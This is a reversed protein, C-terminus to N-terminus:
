GLTPARLFPSTAPPWRCTNQPHVNIVCWAECQGEATENGPHGRRGQAAHDPRRRRQGSKAYAFRQVGRQPRGPSTRGEAETCPRTCRQDTERLVLSLEVSGGLGESVVLHAVRGRLPVLVLDKWHVHQAAGRLQAEPAQKHPFIDSPRCDRAKLARNDEFREGSRAGRGRRVDGDM